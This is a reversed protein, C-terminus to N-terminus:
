ADGLNEDWPLRNGNGQMWTLFDAVIRKASARGRPTYELHSESYMSFQELLENQTKETEHSRAALEDRFLEGDVTEYADIKKM